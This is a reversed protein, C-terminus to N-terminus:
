WNHWNHWGGNGWNHWGNGWNHWGGNGWGNGWNHWGGNGWGGGGGFRVGGGPWNAWWATRINEDKAAEDKTIESVADRISALRSAVAPEETRGATVGTDVPSTSALAASVGMVGAPLLAALLKVAKKHLKM